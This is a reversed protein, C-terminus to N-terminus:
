VRAQESVAQARDFGPVTRAVAGRSPTALRGAATHPPSLLCAPTKVKNLPRSPNSIAHHPLGLFLPTEFAECNLPKWPHADTTSAGSVTGPGWHQAPWAPLESVLYGQLPVCPAPSPHTMCQLTGGHMASPMLRAKRQMAVSLLARRHDQCLVCAESLELMAVPTLGLVRARLGQMM